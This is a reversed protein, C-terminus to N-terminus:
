NRLREVSIMMGQMWVKLDNLEHRVHQVRQELQTEVTQLHSEAESGAEKELAMVAKEIDRAALYIAEMDSGIHGRGEDAIRSIRDATRQADTSGSLGFMVPDM